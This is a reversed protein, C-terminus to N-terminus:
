FFIIKAASFHCLPRIRRDQFGNIQLWPDPPEFGEKEASRYLLNCCFGSIAETEPNKMKVRLLFLLSLCYFGTRASYESICYSCESCKKATITELIHLEKMVKELSKVYDTPTYKVLIHVDDYVTRIILKNEELDKLENALVKSTIESISLEIERFRKNERMISFLIMLKWKGNTVDLADNVPLVDSLCEFQTEYSMKSGFHM